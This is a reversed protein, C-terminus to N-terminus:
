KTPEKSLARIATAIDQAAYLLMNDAEAAAERVGEARGAEYAILRHRAIAQMCATEDAWGALVMKDGCTHFIGLDLYLERDVQEVSEAVPTADKSMM